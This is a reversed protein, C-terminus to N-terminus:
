GGSKQGTDILGQNRWNYATRETVDLFSAVEAVTRDSKLLALVKRASNPHIADPCPPGRELSDVGSTFLRVGSFEPYM